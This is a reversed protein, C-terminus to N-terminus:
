KSIVLKQLEIKGNINLRLFYNGSSIPQKVHINHKHEGASQRFLNESLVIKGEIDLIAFEVNSVQSLTYAITLNEVSPNPYVDLRFLPSSIEPVNILSHLSDRYIVQTPIGGSSNIQLLPIGKGQGLWKYEIREPLDIGFNLGLSDMVISDHEQIVSQLRLVPFTGFPSVLTGWGDITNIRKKSTSYYIGPIQNIAYGSTSSDINGFQLPFKYIVDDSTYAVPAAITDTVIGFGREKFNSTGNNFMDYTGSIPIGLLNLYSTSSFTAQNCQRQFTFYLYIFTPLSSVSLFTDITQSTSVLQSYDWYHNTGGTLDLGTLPSAMSVRFTDGAHSFDSTGLTIQASAIFFSPFLIFTTLLYKKMRFNLKEFIYLIRSTM